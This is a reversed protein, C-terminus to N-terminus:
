LAVGETDDEENLQRRWEELLDDLIKRAEDLPPRIEGTAAFPVSKTGLWTGVDLHSDFEYSLAWTKAARKGIRGLRNYDVDVPVRLTRSEGGPIRLPKELPHDPVPVGNITLTYSWREITLDFPNPNRVDVTFQFSLGTLSLDRVDLGARGLEPEKFFPGGLRGIAGLRDCGSLVMLALMIPLWGTARQMRGVHM